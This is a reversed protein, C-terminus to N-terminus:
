PHVKLLSSMRDHAAQGGARSHCAHVYVRKRNVRNFTGGDIFIVLAHYEPTEEQLKRFLKQLPSIPQKKTQIVFGFVNELLGEDPSDQKLHSIWSDMLDTESHNEYEGTMREANTTSFGRCSIGATLKQLPSVGPRHQLDQPTTAPCMQCHTMCLGSGTRAVEKMDRFHCRRPPGNRDCFRKSTWKPDCTWRFFSDIGFEAWVQSEACTATCQSICNVTHIQAGRAEIYPKLAEKIHDSWLARRNGVQPADRLPVRVEETSPSPAPAPDVVSEFTKMTSPPSKPVPSSKADVEITPLEKEMMSFWDDLDCGHALDAAMILVFLVVQLAPTGSQDM